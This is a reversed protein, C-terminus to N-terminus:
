RSVVRRRRRASPYRRADRYTSLPPPLITRSHGFIISEVYRINGSCRESIDEFAFGSSKKCLQMTEEYVSRASEWEKNHLHVQGLEELGIALQLRDGFTRSAQIFQLIQSVLLDDWQGIGKKQLSRLLYHNYLLPIRANNSLQEM